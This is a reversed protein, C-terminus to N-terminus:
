TTLSVFSIRKGGGLDNQMLPFTVHLCDSNTEVPLEQLLSTLLGGLRM